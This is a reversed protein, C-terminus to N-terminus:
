INKNKAVNQIFTLAQFNLFIPFNKGCTKLIAIIKMIASFSTKRCYSLSNEVNERKTKQYSSTNKDPM